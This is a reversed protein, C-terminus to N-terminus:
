AGGGARRRLGLQAAGDPARLAGAGPRNFCWKHGNCNCCLKNNYPLGTTTILFYYNGNLTLELPTIANYKPRNALSTLNYTYLLAGGDEEDQGSWINLTVAETVNLILTIGRLTFSGGNIDSYMRLGHYTDSSMTTTFAKAGIDGIFKMRTPEKTKLIERLADIKFANIANERANEMKELLTANGGTSNLISLAMGPLEDIYLGSSSGDAFSTDVCLDAKRSIGIVNDFCSYVSM